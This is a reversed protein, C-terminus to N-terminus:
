GKLAATARLKGAIKILEKFRQYQPHRESINRTNDLASICEQVLYQPRESNRAKALLAQAFNLIISTNKPSAKFAERFIEIADDTRGQEFAKVGLLNKENAENNGAFNPKRGFHNHVLLMLAENDSNAEVFEAMLKDVKESELEYTDLGICLDLTAEPPPQTTASLEEHIALAKLYSTKATEVKGALRSTTAEVLKTQLATSPDDSFVEAMEALVSKIEEEAYHKDLSESDALNNAIARALSLYHNPSNHVSHRGLKVTNKWAKHAAAFDGNKECVKALEIQRLIAKPSRKAAASLTAQALAFEEERVQIKALWDYASTVLPYADISEQFMSKAQALKSQHFLCRGAGILAWAQNRNEIVELYVKGAEEYQHMEELLEAKLKLCMMKYRKNSAILDDCIEIAGRYNQEGMAKFIPLLIKNRTVLKDLRSKLTAINFPKTLYGDPTYELAGMVMATSNEATVMLFITQPSILHQHHLTELFQQGDPGEGLNYDSLILHFKRQQCHKIAEKINGAQDIEQVGLMELMNKVSRRFEAFDDVVLAKIKSYDISM